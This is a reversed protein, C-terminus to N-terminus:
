ISELYQTDEEIIEEAGEKRDRPIRWHNSVSSEEKEEGEFYKEKNNDM